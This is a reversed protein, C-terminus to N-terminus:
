SGQRGAHPHKRWTQVLFAAIDDSAQGWLTSMGAVINAVVPQRSPGRKTISRTGLLRMSASDRIGVQVQLVMQGDPDPDFRLVNTEVLLNANAGISGGAGIVMTGPLRSTLNQVLTAELMDSLPEAWIDNEHIDLKFDNAQKVIGQRDLYGPISISRVEVSPPGGRIQGGAVTEIRYYNPSPSACASLGALAFPALGLFALLPRRRSTM